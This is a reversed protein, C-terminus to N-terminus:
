AENYKNSKKLNDIAWLPQLNTYNFCQRQEAEIEFNFLSCPKKHDIHWKGYNDWSMGETFQKELHQKLEELSCGILEKSSASKTHGKLVCKFRTRCNRLLRFNIDTKLRERTRQNRKKSIAKKNTQYYQRRQEVNDQRYKKEHEKIYEENDQRWKKQYVATKETNAIIYKKRKESKKTKDLIGLKNDEYYKKRQAQIKEKNLEYYQKDYESKLEKFQNNRKKITEKNQEYRKKDYTMNCRREIRRISIYPFCM